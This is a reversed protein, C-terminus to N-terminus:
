EGIRSHIAGDLFASIAAPSMYRKCELFGAALM